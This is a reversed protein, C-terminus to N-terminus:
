KAGVLVLHLDGIEEQHVLTAFSRIAHEMNKRPELTNLSLVYPVDPIRYKRRVIEMKKRDTCPYFLEPSAAWYVVFARAPDLKLYDCLDRRTAQSVCIAWGNPGLSKLAEKIHQRGSASFFQPYLVPALDHVTLFRQVGKADRVQ